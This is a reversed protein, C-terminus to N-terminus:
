GLTFDVLSPSLWRGPVVRDTSRYAGAAAWVALDAVRGFATQQSEPRGLARLSSRRPSCFSSGGHCRTAHLVARAASRSRNIIACGIVVLPGILLGWWGPLNLRV